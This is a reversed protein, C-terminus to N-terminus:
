YSGDLFSSIQVLLWFVAFWRLSRHCGCEFNDQEEPRDEPSQRRQDEQDRQEAGGAPWRGLPVKGLGPLRRSSHPLIAVLRVFEM